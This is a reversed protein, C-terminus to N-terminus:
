QPWQFNLKVMPRKIKRNMPVPVPIINATSTICWINQCFCIDNVYKKYFNSKM